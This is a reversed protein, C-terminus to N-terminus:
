DLVHKFWYNLCDLYKESEFLIRNDGFITVIYKSKYTTIYM